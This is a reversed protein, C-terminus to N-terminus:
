LQNVTYGFFQDPLSSLNMAFMAANYATGGYVAKERSHKKFVSIFLRGFTRFFM